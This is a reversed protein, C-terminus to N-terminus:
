LHLRLVPCELGAGSMAANEARWFTRYCTHVVRRVRGVGHYLSVACLCKVLNCVCLCLCIFWSPLCVLVGGLDM